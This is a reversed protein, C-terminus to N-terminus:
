VLSGFIVVIFIDEFCDVVLFLEERDYDNGIVVVFVKICLVSFM